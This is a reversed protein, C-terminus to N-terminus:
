RWRTKGTFLLSDQSLVVLNVSHSFLAPLRHATCQQQVTCRAEGKTPTTQLKGTLSRSFLLDWALPTTGVKSCVRWGQRLTHFAAIEERFQRSVSISVSKCQYLVYSDECLHARWNGKRRGRPARGASSLLMWKSTNLGKPARLLGVHSPGMKLAPSGTHTRSGAELAALTVPLVGRARCSGARVCPPHSVPYGPLPCHSIYLM